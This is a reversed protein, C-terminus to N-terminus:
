MVNWNSKEELWTADQNPEQLEWARRVKQSFEGADFREEVTRNLYRRFRPAVDFADDDLSLSEVYKEARKRGSKEEERKDAEARNEAASFSSQCAPCLFPRHKSFVDVKVGVCAWHFYRTCTSCEIMKARPRGTECTGCVEWEEWLRSGMSSPASSRPLVPPASEAELERDVEAEVDAANPLCKRRKKSRRPQGVPPSKRAKRKSLIRGETEAAIQQLPPRQLRVGTQKGAAPSRDRKKGSSAVPRPSAPTNPPVFPAPSVPSMTSIVANMETLRRQAERIREMENAERPPEDEVSVALETRQRTEVRIWREDRPSDDAMSASSASSLSSLLSTPSCPESSSASSPTSSLSPSSLTGLTASVTSGSSSLHPVLESSVPSSTSCTSTTVASIPSSPSTSSISSPLSLSDSEASSRTPTVPLADHLLYPHRDSMCDDCCWRSKGKRCKTSFDHDLHFWQDCCDCQGGSEGYQVPKGCGLSGCMGSPEEPRACKTTSVARKKKPWITAISPSSTPTSTSSLDAISHSRKSNSPPSPNLPVPAATPTRYVKKRKSSATLVVVPTSPSAIAPATPPPRPAAMLVRVRERLRTIEPLHDLQCQLDRDMGLEEMQHLRDQSKEMQAKLEKSDAKLQTNTIRLAENDGWLSRLRTNAKDFSARLRVEKAQLHRSIEMVTNKMDAQSKALQEKFSALQARLNGIVDRFVSEARRLDLPRTKHLGLVVTKFAELREFYWQEDKAKAASLAACGVCPQQYVIIDGELAKIMHQADDLQDLSSRDGSTAVNFPVQQVGHGHGTVDMVDVHVGRDDGEAGRGGRAIKARLRQNEDELEKMRIRETRREEELAAGQNVLEREKRQLAAERKEPDLAKTEDAVKASHSATSTSATVIAPVTTVNTSATATSSTAIPLEVREDKKEELARVVSEGGVGDDVVVNRATQTRRVGGGGLGSSAGSRRGGVGANGSHEGERGSNLRPSSRTGRAPQPLHVDSDNTLDMPDDSVGSSVAMAEGGICLKVRVGGGRDVDLRACVRPERGAKYEVLAEKGNKLLSLQEESFWEVGEGDIGDFSTNYTLSGDEDKKEERVNVVKEVAPPPLSDKCEPCRLRDNNFEAIICLRHAHHPKSGAPRPSNLLIMHDSNDILGEGAGFTCAVCEGETVVVSPRSFVYDVAAELRELRQLDAADLNPLAHLSEYQAHLQFAREQLVLQREAAAAAEEVDAEVMRQRQEQIRRIALRFATRPSDETWVEDIWLAINSAWIDQRSLLRPAVDGAFEMWYRPDDDEVEDDGDHLTIRAPLQAIHQKWEETWAEPFESEAIWQLSPAFLQFSWGHEMSFDWDLPQCRSVAEIWPGVETAWMDMATMIHSSDDGEFWLEFVRDDEGGAEEIPTVELLKASVVQQKYAAVCDPYPYDREAMWQQRGVAPNFARFEWGKDRSCRWDYPEAREYQQVVTIWQSYKLEEFICFRTVWRENNGAWRVLYWEHERHEMDDDTMDAVEADGLVETIVISSIVEQMYALVMAAGEPTISLHEPHRWCRRGGMTVELQLGPEGDEDRGRWDHIRSFPRPLTKILEKIDKKGRKILPRASLLQLLRHRLTSSRVVDSHGEVANGITYPLVSDRYAELYEPTMGIDFAFILSYLQHTKQMGSGVWAESAEKVLRAQEQPDQELYIKYLQTLRVLLDVLEAIHKPGRLFANTRIIYERATGEEPPLDVPVLLIRCLRVLDAYLLVLIVHNFVFCKFPQGAETPSSM